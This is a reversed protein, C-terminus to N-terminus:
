PTQTPENQAEREIIHMLRRCEAVDHQAKSYTYYRRLYDPTHIGNSPILWAYAHDRITTCWMNIRMKLRIDVDQNPVGSDLLQRWKDLASVMHRVQMRFLRKRDIQSRITIVVVWIVPLLLMVFAITGIIFISFVHEM